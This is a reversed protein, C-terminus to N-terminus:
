ELGLLQSYFVLVTIGFGSFPCCHQFQLVINCLHLFFSTHFVKFTHFLKLFFFFFLWLTQLTTSLLWLLSFLAMLIKCPFKWALISLPRIGNRILYTNPRQYALVQIAWSCENLFFFFDQNIKEILLHRTKPKQKKKEEELQLAESNSLNQQLLFSSHCKFLLYQKGHNGKTDMCCHLYKLLCIKLLHFTKYICVKLIM